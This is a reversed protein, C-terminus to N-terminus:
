AWKAEIANNGSLLRPLLLDRTKSLNVIQLHLQHILGFSPSVVETFRELVSRPPQAVLLDDFCQERVRQRGSAGSM